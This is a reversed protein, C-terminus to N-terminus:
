NSAADGEVPETPETPEPPAPPPPKAFVVVDGRAAVFARVPVRLAEYDDKSYLGPKLELTRTVTTKGDKTESALTFTGLASEISAKEPVQAVTYEAPATVTVADSISRPSSIYIDRKREAADFYNGRPASWISLPFALRHDVARAVPAKVSYSRTCQGAARDCTKDKHSEFVAGPFRWNAYGRAAREWSGKRERPKKVVSAIAYGGGVRRSVEVRANGDARLTVAQREHSSLAHALAGETVAHQLSWTNRKLGKDVSMAIVAPAQFTYPSLQGRSCADCKPDIWIPTEVGNGKPVYVMPVTFVGYLPADLGYHARGFPAVLALKADLGADTLLKWVMLGRAAVGAKEKKVVKALSKVSSFSGWKGNPLFKERVMVLARDVLCDGACGETDLALDFDKFLKKRPAADVIPKAFTSGLVEAWDTTVNSVHNGYVYQVLRRSVSPRAFRSPAAFDEPTVSKFEDTTWTLVSQGGRRSLTPKSETNRSHLRHRNGDPVSVTRTYRLVPRNTGAPSGFSPCGGDKWTSKVAYRTEILSGVEVAPLILIKRKFKKQKLAPKEADGEDDDGADDDKVVITVTDDRLSKEDLTLVDGDPRILTASFSTLKAKEHLYFQILKGEAINENLVAFVRRTEVECRGVPWFTDVAYLDQDEWDLFVGWSDPYESPEPPQYSDLAESTLMLRPGCGVMLLALFSFMLRKM